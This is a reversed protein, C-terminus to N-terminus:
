DKMLLDLMSIDFTYIGKAQQVEQREKFSDDIFIADSHTIFSSKNEAHNLHIIREFLSAVRWKKLALGLNGAHRSILYCPIGDNVCQYLFRILPLCLKEHIVLTDDYDVYVHGFTINCRYSNTLARSIRNTVPLVNMKVPINQQEYLSLMPFNIGRVRNVAMTGAIRPAVELLTLTGDTSAKIQFFWAGRLQFREYISQAMERIGPLEVTISAMSIGARIRERTRAQCFLLGDQYSSFCDVTYEKGPLYESIIVGDNDQLYVELSERDQIKIAGQAGQGKDPKAFVPWNVIEDISKYCRPVPIIDALAAYTKSKYRTIACAEANSSVIKAAIESQYKTYTLLVDDHAPFIFHIDNIHIFDQLAALWNSDEISPLIYYQEDVYRAHNDYDAGALFIKVSKEYRLSLWIERGIETGAPSILVNLM